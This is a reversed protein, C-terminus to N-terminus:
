GEGFPAVAKDLKRDFSRCNIETWFADRVCCVLLHFDSMPLDKVVALRRSIEARVESAFEEWQVQDATTDPRDHDHQSM